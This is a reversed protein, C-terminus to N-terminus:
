SGEERLFARLAEKWPRLPTGLMETFRRCELQSNAPRPAPKGLAAWTTVALLSEANPFELIEGIALAVDVRSGGGANSLHFTGRFGSPLKQLLSWIGQAIDKTYSPSYTHGVAMAKSGSLFARKVSSVFNDRAIGFLGSVRVVASRPPFSLSAEEALLKSRGYVNVPHPLDEERYPRSLKGDFVYDTSISILSAGADRCAKAVNETGTANIEMAALPERECVDVDSLAACHIMWHPKFRQISSVVSERKTIDVPEMPFIAKDDIRRAWGLLSAQKALLACLDSGLMGTAGTVVIRV